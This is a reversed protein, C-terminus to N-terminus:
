KRPVFWEAHKTANFEIIEYASIGETLFPDEALVADIQERPVDTTLIVGGTRPNLPGSVIFLGSKYHRDLFERHAPLVRDIEEIPKVYRSLLLFM